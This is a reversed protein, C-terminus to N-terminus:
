SNTEAQNFARIEDSRPAENTSYARKTANIATTQIPATVKRPLSAASLKLVMPLEIM